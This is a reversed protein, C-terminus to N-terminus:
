RANAVLITCYITSEIEQFTIEDEMMKKIFKQLFNIHIIGFLTLQSM